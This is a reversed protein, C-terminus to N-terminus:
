LSGEFAVNIKIDGHQTSCVISSSPIKDLCVLANRGTFVFPPSLRLDLSYKNNLNTIGDGAIINNMESIASLVVLEKTTDFQKGTISKVFRLATEHDMDLLMRGKLKGNFSIVSSVGTSKFEREEDYFSADSTIEANAMKKLIIRASDLFPNFLEKDM